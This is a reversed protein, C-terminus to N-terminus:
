SHNINAPITMRGAAVEDRVLEPALNERQAVFRMEDTIVGRRAYHMQSFNGDTNEAKRRSIWEARPKPVDKGTPDVHFGNGNHGSM